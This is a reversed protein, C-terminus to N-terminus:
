VGNRAPLSGDLKVYRDFVFANRNQYQIELWGNRQALVNLVTGETVIGIKVGNRDPQVRVNLRPTNVVGLM